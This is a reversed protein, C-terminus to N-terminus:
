GEQEGKMRVRGRREREDKRVNEGNESRGGNEGKEGGEIFVLSAVRM